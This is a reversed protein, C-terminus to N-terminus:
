APASRVGIIPATTSPRPSASASRRISNWGDGHEVIDAEPDLEGALFTMWAEGNSANAARLEGLTM